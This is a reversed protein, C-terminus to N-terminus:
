AATYFIDTDDGEGYDGTLYSFSLGYQWTPAEDAFSFDPSALLMGAIWVILTLAHFRRKVTRTRRESTLKEPREPKELKQPRDPRDPKGPKEPREIGEPKGSGALKVPREAKDPRKAKGFGLFGALRSFLGRKRGRTQVAEGAQVGEEAELGDGQLPEQVQNRNRMLQGIKLDNENAIEGFGMGEARAALIEALAKDFTLPTENEATKVVLQEALATAIKINGWGAGDARMQDVQEQTLESNELLDVMYPPPNTADPTEEKPTGPIPDEGEQTEPPPPDTVGTESSTGEEVVQAMAQAAGLCLLAAALLMLICGSRLKTKYM